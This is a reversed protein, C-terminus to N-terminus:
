HLDRPPVEFEKRRDRNKLAEDFIWFQISNMVVPVIIMVFALELNANDNFPSLVWEAYILFYEQLYFIAM